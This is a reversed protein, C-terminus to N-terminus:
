DEDRPEKRREDKLGLAKRMARRVALGDPDTSEDGFRGLATDMRGPTWGQQWFWYWYGHKQGTLLTVDPDIFFGAHRTLLLKNVARLWAPYDLAAGDDRTALTDGM